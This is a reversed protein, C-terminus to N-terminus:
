RTSEATEERFQEFARTEEEHRQREADSSELQRELEAQTTSRYGEFETKERDLDAAIQTLEAEKTRREQDYAELKDSLDAKEAEITARAEARAEEFDRREAELKDRWTELQQLAEAKFEEFEQRDGSLESRQREFASNVADVSAQLELDKQKGALDEQLAEKKALLSEVEVKLDDYLASLKEAVQHVM